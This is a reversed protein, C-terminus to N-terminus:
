AGDKSDAEKWRWTRPRVKELATPHYKLISYCTLDIAGLPSKSATQAGKAGARRWIEKVHLPEGRAEKLVDMVASRLSVTGKPKRRMVEFLSPQPLAGNKTAHVRLWGELGKVLSILYEREEEVRALQGKFEDLMKRASEEEM